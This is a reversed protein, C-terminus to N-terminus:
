ENHRGYRYNQCSNLCKCYIFILFWVYYIFWAAFIFRYWVENQCRLWNGSIAGDRRRVSVYIKHELALLLCNLVGEQTKYCVTTHKRVCPTSLTYLNCSLYTFMVCRQTNNSVGIYTILCVETHLKVSQYRELVSVKSQGETETSSLDLQVLWVIEFKGESRKLYNL